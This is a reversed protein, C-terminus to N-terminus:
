ENKYIVEITIDGLIAHKEPAYSGDMKNLEKIASINDNFRVDAVIDDDDKFHWVNARAIDSLREEREAVLMKTSNISPQRLEELREIIKVTSSLRSSLSDANNIANQHHPNYAQLYAERQTMGSLIKLCFDEQKQLLLVISWHHHSGGAAM